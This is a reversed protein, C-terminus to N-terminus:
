CSRLGKKTLPKGRSGPTHQKTTQVSIGYYQNERKNETLCEETENLFEIVENELAKIADETEQRLAKLSRIEAVKENMEKTTICM